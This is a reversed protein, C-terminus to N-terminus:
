FVFSDDKLPVVWKALIDYRFTDDTEGPTILYTQVLYQLGVIISAESMRVLGAANEPNALDVADDEESSYLFESTLLNEVLSFSFPSGLLSGWVLISRAAPPLEQLRKAIFSLGLGEGHESFVFETFIRDLDFEWKSTEWSYWICNKNYCTELMMRVYFPIGASKELVVATLPTLVPSPECHMTEAIFQMVENESLPRLAIETVNSEEANFLSKVAESTLESKNSSLVLVCPVGTKVISMILDLTEDDAYHVDDLCVCVLRTQSLIKLIELFTEMLRMNKAAANSLFFDVPTQGHDLIPISVRKPSESDGHIDKLIHQSASFNPHVQDDKEGPSMLHEPLNLVKHLIPWIPRLASRVSNHYQTNVDRESFIQRLISALAKAFPEYPVRQARDLRAIAIYGRKRIVPQIRNLLDSKGLGASGSLAIVATQTHRRLKSFARQRGLTFSDVQGTANNSLFPHSERDAYEWSAFSEAPSKGLVGTGTKQPSVSLGLHKTTSKSSDSSQTSDQTSDQTNVRGLGGSAPTASSSHIKLNSEGSDSSHVEFDANETRSETLSPNSGVSSLGNPTHALAKSIATQQQRKVDEVIDIIRNYEEHRGFMRTPLTFFSSVDHQAVKFKKLMESNGDGLLESIQALDRKVSTITHYREDVAKRTMKQIVASVADPIDMRKTSVAPLKKGLVNQVVEFADNGNFAPQGVLMTWFLVGLAYIDTRSDPETPMRGTQEPAIFQLKNKVGVERSVAAWGESLMNDFARPGNGANTLKVARTERNFHFADGRLEGHITRFGCHLLELCDCAGVAFDIFDSLPVQENLLPANSDGKKEGFMFWDPGFAHLENLIDPGLSEYIAVLIPGGDSPDPPLRVLDVPRVTHNCEPDSTQALSRLMYFERELKVVQNSVRATVPMYPSENDLRSSSVESSSTESLSNRWQQRTPPRSDTRPSKRAHSSPGSSTAHTSGDSEVPYRLGTIYWCSYSSHFPETSPDFTYGHLQSLREVLRSPPAPLVGGPVPPEM